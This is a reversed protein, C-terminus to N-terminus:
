EFRAVPRQAVCRRLWPGGEDDAGECIARRMHEPSTAGWSRWQLAPSSCRPRSAGAGLASRVALEVAYGCLAITMQVGEKLSRLSHGSSPHGARTSLPGAVYAGDCLQHRADPALRGLEWPLACRWYTLVVVFCGSM